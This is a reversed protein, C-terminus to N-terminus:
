EQSVVSNEYAGPLSLVDCMPFRGPTYGTAHSTLDVKGTKAMDYNEQGKGLIGGLYRTITIRGNSKQEMEDLIPKILLRYLSSPEPYDIGFRLNIKETSSPASQASTVFVLVLGIVAFLTIQKKMM